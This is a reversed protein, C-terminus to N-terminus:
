VNLSCQLVISVVGSYTPCPYRTSSTLPDGPFFPVVVYLYSNIVHDIACAPFKLKAQALIDKSFIPGM